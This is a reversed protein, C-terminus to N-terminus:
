RALLHKFRSYEMVRFGSYRGIYIYIAVVVLITEPFSIIVAQLIRWEMLGFSAAAVLMTLISVRVAHLM